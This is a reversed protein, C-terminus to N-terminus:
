NSLRSALFLALGDMPRSKRAHRSRYRGIKHIRLDSERSKWHPAVYESLHPDTSPVIFAAINKQHFMARLANIKESVTQNM